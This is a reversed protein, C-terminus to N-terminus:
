KQDPELARVVADHVQPRVAAIKQSNRTPYVRNTLFVILLDRTPDAAVSTGTFGTHLFTNPSLLTGAWSRGAPKMDWGIGRTSTQFQRTTFRKLVEEKLYRKGGYTGGNLEMQLLIALNPATSFLGAHGSVGGLVWANEDHVTGRVAVGTKRWFNDVETPMVHNWLREPPNFMTSSMGLPKFFVSDVFRDLTTGSVKEVIKGTTILGLDSYISTDGTKYTLRAAFVSDLLEQPTKCIEYFKGWAVLGSNHVLLNYVTIHEKGNQGFQPIYKVVPDELKIKGEGVLRMVASTTSTVKTVSALDFISNVDVRKSYPDYDYTGYAKEHVIIGNKAVVLVAGPFATDRIAREIIDDVRDLGARTFGAEEPLGIRLRTKPYEVGDGFKYMGPINIPLKGRAPAEAFLVEAVADQMIESGSYACVYADLKPLDMVVYPNGFSIAVIPKGLSGLRALLNKQKSSMFGTMEGSRVSLQLQCIIVDANKALDLATEYETDNSRPDVKAFEINNRRARLDAHFTRGERQDETDSVVLDLFKRTDLPSLPLIEKKNGLVTVANRAVERALIEHERTGVVGSIHQVDVVRNKDLGAWQKAKLIRRVSADIRQESLEGRQVAAVAADIGVNVDTPMLVVDAGAKLALVTAEAAGYKSSVARMRMADTVVLGDFHLENRLLDTTIKPSITAPASSGGDLAPAAIHGVMVSMVGSQIAAKFPPLEISDFHKKDFNLTVLGLHTDIDTDGHGPFHKITSIMGGDQTGKVYAAGMESVLAVDDGFSRTNIVPNRPNNNVDVTPAYNQEVGLARGEVATAKGIEYAYEKNRTAGIAMARPFATARPVRMAVGYEYDGSILLPVDALKQIRNVGLAYEYVDGVSLVLGGVKRNVVLKELEKWADADEAYYSGQISPFVLQGVKERLSLRHLTSEVWDSQSATTATAGVATQRAYAVGSLLLCLLLSSRVM